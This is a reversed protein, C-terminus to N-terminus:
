RRWYGVMKVSSSRYGIEHRLYTRIESMERSEGAGYFWTRDDAHLDLARVADLLVGSVGPDGGHRYVWTTPVGLDYRHVEDAAEAIVLVETGLPVHEALGVAAAWGSEDVIVVVRSCYQPMETGPRPGWVIAQDGPRCTAAWAGIGTECGHDVAWLTLERREPDWRRVTYYAGFPRQDPETAMFEAMEYGAPLAGDRAVIVYVFDDGGNVGFRDFDGTVVVEILNPALRDRRVVQVPYSRLRPRQALEREISTPAVADGVRYRTETVVGILREQLDTQTHVPKHFGIRRRDITSDVIVDIDVGDTDVSVIEADTAGAVDFHHRAIFLVSDAHTSNIHEISERMPDFVEAARTLNTSM